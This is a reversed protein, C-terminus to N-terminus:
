RRALVHLQGAVAMFDPRSAVARELDLLAQRAGAETDVLASPVLDSFVRVAEAREVIFGHDVLLAGIEEHTYRRPGETRLDWGDATSGLMLRAQAFDGALARALVAALRGSVLVSVLGNPRLARHVAALAVAPDDVVELVGHCLVLHAAHEEVHEALDTADGQVGHVRGEVASEVARRHLSALADPSPDVVTVRHGLEAVRVAFGGTGGGLDVVELPGAQVGELDRLAELVADWVVATRVAGSGPEASARDPM